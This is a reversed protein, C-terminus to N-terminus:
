SLINNQIFFIYLEKSLIIHMVVFSDRLIALAFIFLKLM